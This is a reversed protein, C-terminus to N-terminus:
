WFKFSYANNVSPTSFALQSNLKSVSDGVYLNSNPTGPFLLAKAMLWFSPRFEEIKSFAFFSILSSVAM